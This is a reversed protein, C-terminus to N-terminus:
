SLRGWLLRLSPGWTVATFVTFDECPHPALQLFPSCPGCLCCGRGGSWRGLSGGLESKDLSALLWMKVYMQNSVCNVLNEELLGLM